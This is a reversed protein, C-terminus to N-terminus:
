RPPALSKSRENAENKLEPGDSLPTSDIQPGFEAVTGQSFPKVLCSTFSEAHIPLHLSKHLTAGQADM